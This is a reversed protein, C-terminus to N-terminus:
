LTNNIINQPKLDFYAVKIYMIFSHSLREDKLLNKLEGYVKTETPRRMSVSRNKESKNELKQYYFYCFYM